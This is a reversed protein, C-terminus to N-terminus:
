LEASAVIHGLIVVGNGATMGPATENHYASVAKSGRGFATAAGTGSSGTGYSYDLSGATGSTTYFTVTPTGRMEVPYIWTAGWTQNTLQAYTGGVWLSAGTNTGPVEGIDYTKQYYRKCLHLEMGYPRREFPTAVSGVELQLGTLFFTAGNTAILQTAGTVNSPATGDSANWGTNITRSASGGAGFLVSTGFDNTTGWGTGITPGPIVMTKYEWTNAAAINYLDGYTVTRGNDYMILPFNGTVSSRVWFSLTVTKANATGWEFDAINFGEVIHRAIDYAFASTPAADATTVTVSLSKNFGSPATSSQQVTMRGTGSGYYGTQFRDLHYGIAANTVAAGANRQDIRFDGNIIRNRFGFLQSTSEDLKAATVASDAIVGSKIRQISM